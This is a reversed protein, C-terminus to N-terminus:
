SFRLALRTQGEPATQILWKNIGRAAFRGRLRHVLNRLNAASFHRNLLEQLRASLEQNRKFPVFNVTSPAAPEPTSGIKPDALLSLLKALTVSLEVDVGDIFATASGDANPDLKFDIVGSQAARELLKDADTKPKRRKPKEPSLGSRNIANLLMALMAGPTLEPPVRSKGLNSMMDSVRMLWIQIENLRKELCRLHEVDELAQQVAPQLLDFLRRFIDLNRNNADFSNGNDGM